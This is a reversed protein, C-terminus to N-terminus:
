VEEKEAELKKVVQDLVGNIFKYADKECFNKALEIAENIIITSPTETEQLEWLAIHLILRTCCGIRELKWNALLPILFQNYKERQSVIADVTQAIEGECPIEQDLGSNFERIIEGAAVDYGFADVAYLVQFMLSRVERRSLDGCNM